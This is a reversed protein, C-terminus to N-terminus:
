KFVGFPLSTKRAITRFQELTALSTVDKAVVIVPPLHRGNQDQHCKMVIDIAPYGSPSGSGSLVKYKAETSYCEKVLILTGNVVDNYTANEIVNFYKSNATKLNIRGAGAIAYSSFHSNNRM